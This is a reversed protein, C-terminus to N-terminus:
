IGHHKALELNRRGHQKYQRGPKGDAAQEMPGLRGVRHAVVARLGRVRRVRRFCSGCGWDLLDIRSTTALGSLALGVLASVHLSTTETKSSFSAAPSSRNM